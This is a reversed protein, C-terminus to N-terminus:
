EWTVEVKRELSSAKELAEEITCLPDGVKGDASVIIFREGSERVLLSGSNQIWLRSGKHNGASMCLEHWSDETKSLHVPYEGMLENNKWAFDGTDSLFHDVSSSLMTSDTEEDYALWLAANMFDSPFDGTMFVKKKPSKGSPRRYSAEVGKYSDAGEFEVCKVSIHGLKMADEKSRSKILTNIDFSPYSTLLSFLCCASVRQRKSKSYASLYM